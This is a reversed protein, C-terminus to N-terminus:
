EVVSIFRAHWLMGNETRGQHRVLIRQGVSLDQDHSFGTGVKGVPHLVGDSGPESVKIAAFRRDKVTTPTLATIVVETEELYKTRV